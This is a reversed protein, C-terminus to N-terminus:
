GSPKEPAAYAGPLEFWKGYVKNGADARMHLRPQGSTFNAEFVTHRDMPPTIECRVLYRAPQRCTGVIRSGPRAVVDISLELQGGTPIRFTLRRVRRACKKVTVLTIEGDM